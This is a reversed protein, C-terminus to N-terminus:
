EPPRGGRELYDVRIRLETVNQNLHKLDTLIRHQGTKYDETLTNINSSQQKVVESLKAIQSANEESVSHDTAKSFWQTLVITIVIVVVQALLKMSPQETLQPPANTDSMPSYSSKINEPFKKGWKGKKTLPNERSERVEKRRFPNPIGCIFFSMYKNKNPQICSPLFSIGGM